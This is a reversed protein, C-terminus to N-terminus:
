PMPQTTIILTASPPPGNQTIVIIVATTAVVAGGITATWFWWTAYFPTGQKRSHPPDAPTTLDKPKIRLPTYDNTDKRRPKIRRPTDDYTDKRRPKIRRPTDDYTKPPAATHKPPDPKRAIPDPETPKPTPKVIKPVPRPAAPAPAIIRVIKSIYENILLKHEERNKGVNVEEYQIKRSNQLYSAIKLLYSGDGSGKPSIIYLHRVNLRSCIQELRDLIGDDLEAGKAFIPIGDIHLSRPDRKFTITTEITKRQKILKPDINAVREWIQFGSKEIRLLHKGQIVDLKLPTRGRYRLNLYVQADSPVSNIQLHYTPRRMLWQRIVNYYTIFTSPYTAADPQFDPDFQVTQLVYGRTKEADGLAMYSLAHYLYIDRVPQPDTLIGHMKSAMQEAIALAKITDQYRKFRHYLLKAKRLYDDLVRIRAQEASSISRQVTLKNQMEDQPPIVIRQQQSFTWRFLRQIWSALESSIGAEPPYPLIAVHVNTKSPTNAQSLSV